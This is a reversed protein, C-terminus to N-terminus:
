GGREAFYAVLAAPDNAYLQRADRLSLPRPIRWCAWMVAGIDITNRLFCGDFPHRDPAWPSWRKARIAGWREDSRRVFTLVNRPRPNAFCRAFSWEPSLPLAPDREHRNWREVWENFSFIVLEAEWVEMPGAKWWGLNKGTPAPLFRPAGNGELKQPKHHTM